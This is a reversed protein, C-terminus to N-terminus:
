VIKRKVMTSSQSQTVIEDGMPSPPCLQEMTVYLTLPFSESLMFMITEFTSSRAVCMEVSDYALLLLSKSQM